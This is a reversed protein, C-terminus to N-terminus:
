CRTYPRLRPRIMIPGMDTESDWADQMRKQAELAAKTPDAQASPIETVLHNALQCIIPLYWRQPVEIIQTMAGNAPTGVDQVYRQTTAVIQNFTYQFYPAPWLTLNPIPIQKDYWFQVPRGRFFKDPLNIYDDRSLKAIPIENPATEYALQTVNLTTLAGATIRINTIQDPVGEIDLWQWQGAVAAFSMTSYINTYTVGYNTSVQLSFNWNGSANPMIGYIPIANLPSIALDIWGGPSTQVCANQLTGDFANAAIGSSSTPTGTILTSTRLMAWFVDVTGLPCPVTLVSEYIPLVVQQVAWLAIGKQNLESLILYLLDLATQIDEGAM